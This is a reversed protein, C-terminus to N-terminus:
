QLCLEARLGSKLTTEAGGAEEHQGLGQEVALRLSRVVADFLDERAIETAASPIRPDDPSDSVQPVFSETIM